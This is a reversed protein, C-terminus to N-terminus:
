RGRELFAAAIRDVAYRCAEFSMWHWSEDPHRTTAPRGPIAEALFKRRPHAEVAARFLRALSPEYPGLLARSRLLYCGAQTAECAIDLPAFDIPRFPTNDPLTRAPAMRLRAPLISARLPSRMIGVNGRDGRENRVAPKGETRSPPHSESPAKGFTVDTARESGPRPGSRAGGHLPKVVVGPTRARSRTRSDRDTM